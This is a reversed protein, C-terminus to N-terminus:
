SIQCFVITLVESLMEITLEIKTKFELEDINYKNYKDIFESTLYLAYDLSISIKDNVQHLSVINNGTIYRKENHDYFVGAGYATETYREILTDDFILYTNSRSSLYKNALSYIGKKLMKLNKFLKKILRIINSAHVDVIDLTKLKNMSKKINRLTGDIIQLLTRADTM